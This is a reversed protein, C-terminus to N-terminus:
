SAIFVLGSVILLFIILSLVSLGITIWGIVIGATALGDGGIRGGSARIERQANRGVIVAPIGAAAGLVSLSGLTVCALVWFVLQGVLALVLSITANNSIPASTVAPSASSPVTFPRPEPPPAVPALGAPADYVRASDSANVAAPANAVPLGFPPTDGPRLSVTQGTAPAAPVLRTGCRLCFTATAENEVGCVPCSM